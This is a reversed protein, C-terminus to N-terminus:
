TTRMYWGLLSIRSPVQVNGVAFGTFHGGPEGILAFLLPHEAGLDPDLVRTKERLLLQM